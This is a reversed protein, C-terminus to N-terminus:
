TYFSRGFLAEIWARQKELKKEWLATEADMEVGFDVVNTPKLQLHSFRPQRSCQMLPSRRSRWKSKAVVDIEEEKKREVFRQKTAPQQRHRVKM